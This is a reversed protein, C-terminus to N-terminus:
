FVSEGRCDISRISKVKTRDYRNRPFIDRYIQIIDAVITNRYMDYQAM